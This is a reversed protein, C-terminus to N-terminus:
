RPQERYCSEDFLEPRFEFHMTDFHYWRGGWIFGQDEFARIVDEPVRNSWTSQWRWYAGLKPNLDVAIGFAHASKRETGAINRPNFGGGLPTLLEGWGPNARVLAVLRDAVRRLAPAVRRHVSVSGRGLQVPVLAREVDTPTAGYAATFLPEPRFRGPDFDQETVPRPPGRRYPPTFMDKLDPSRLREDFTKDRGDDDLVVAGSEFELGYGSGRRAM